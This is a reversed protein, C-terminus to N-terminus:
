RWKLVYKKSSKSYSWHTQNIDIEEYDEHKYIQDKLVPDCISMALKYIAELNAELLEERKINNNACIKWMEKQTSMANENLDRPTFTTMNEQQLCKWVEVGNKYTTSTYLQLKELAKLYFNPGNKAMSFEVGKLLELLYWKAQKTANNNRGHQKKNFKSIKKEDGEKSKLMTEGQGVM